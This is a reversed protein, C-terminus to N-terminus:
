FEIEISTSNKERSHENSGLKSKTSNSGDIEEVHFMSVPKSKASQTRQVQGHGSPGPELETGGDGTAEPTEEVMDCEMEQDRDGMDVEGDTDRLARAKQIDPLNKAEMLFSMKIAKLENRLDEM